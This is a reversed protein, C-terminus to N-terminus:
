SDADVPGDPECDDDMCVRECELECRQEGFRRQILLTVYDVVIGVNHVIVRRVSYGRREGSKRHALPSYRDMHISLRNDKGLSVHLSERDSDERLSVKGAHFMGGLRSDRVFRGIAQLDGFDMAHSHPRREPADAPLAAHHEAVAETALDPEPGVDV